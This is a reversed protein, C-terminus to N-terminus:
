LGLKVKRLLFIEAGTSLCIYLHVSVFASPIFLVFTSDARRRCFLLFQPLAAWTLLGTKAKLLSLKFATFLVKLVTACGSHASGLRAELFPFIWCGSGGEAAFHECTHFRVSRLNGQCIRNDANMGSDGKAPDVRLAPSCRHQCHHFHASYMFPAPGFKPNGESYFDPYIQVPLCIEVSGECWTQWWISNLVYCSSKCLIQLRNCTRFDVKVQYNAWQCCGSTM